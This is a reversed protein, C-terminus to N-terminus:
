GVWHWVYTRLYTPVYEKQVRSKGSELGGGIGIGVGCLGTCRLSVSPVSPARQM